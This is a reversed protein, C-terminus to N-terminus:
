ATDERTTPPWFRGDAPYPFDRLATGPDDPDFTWYQRIQSIREARIEYHESGRILVGAGPAAMTWESAAAGSSDALFTDVHWSACSWRRAVSAYFRGIQEAGCVPSHNTDYVVADDHFHRAISPAEGHSCARFYSEVLEREAGPMRRM